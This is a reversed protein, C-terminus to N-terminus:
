PTGAPTPAAFTFDDLAVGGAREPALFEVTHIGPASVSLTKGGDDTDSSSAITKGDLGFANLTIVQGSGLLDGRVSVFNTVAPVSPDSSDFFRAVIPFQADYTLVGNPTSGGIGNTGSTAHGDGLDVVAVYPSGSSFRVGHTYLYTDSLRASPPIPNRSMFTMSDVNEFDLTHHLDTDSRRPLSSCASLVTLYLGLCASLASARALLKTLEVKM